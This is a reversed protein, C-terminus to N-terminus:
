LWINMSQITLRAHLSALNILLTLIIPLMEVATWRVSNIWGDTSEHSPNSTHSTGMWTFPYKSWPDIQFETFSVHCQLRCSEKVSWLLLEGM